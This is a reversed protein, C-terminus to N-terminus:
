LPIYIGISTGKGPVSSLDISGKLFAIRAQINQLGIGASKKKTDFGKGNDEITIDIGEKNRLLSLDLRNAQSHKIVNTICEQIIRYLVSETEPMLREELGEIHLQIKLVKQDIKQIFDGLASSLGKKLLANPMMSHSVARVESCSEDVLGLVRDLKIQKEESLPKMDEMVAELNMRAASMLQGVGDHLEAAIRRRETEEAQIVARASLDQQHLIETQLEKEKKLQYHRYYNYGLLVMLGGVIALSGITTNKRVLESQQLAIQQEKKESEYKVEMDAIAEINSENLISDHFTLYQQISSLARVPQGSKEFYLAETKYYDRLNILKKNEQIAAWASDLLTKAFPIKGASLSTEAYAIFLGALNRTNQIQHNLELAKQFYDFALAYKGKRSSIDALSSNLLALQRVDQMQTYITLAKEYYYEASDYQQLLIMANGISHLGIAFNANDSLSEFIPLGKKFYEIAKPVEQKKLYVQGIFNYTVGVSKKDKVEEYTRLASLMYEIAAELDGKEKSVYGLNNYSQAIGPTDKIQQRITLAEKYFWLTSDMKGLEIYVNGQNNLAFAMHKRDDKKKADAYYGSFAELAQPYHGGYYQAMGLTNWSNIRFRTLNSKAESLKLASNAWYVASDPNSALYTESLRLMIKVKVSDVTASKLINTLSDTNQGSAFVAAVALFLGVLLIKRM